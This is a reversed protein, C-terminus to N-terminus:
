PTLPHFEVSHWSGYGEDLDGLASPLAYTGYSVLNSVGAAFGYVAFRKMVDKTEYVRAEVSRRQDTRRKCFADDDNGNCFSGCRCLLVIPLPEGGVYDKMTTKM